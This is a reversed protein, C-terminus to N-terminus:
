ARIQLREINRSMKPVEIEWFGKETAAEVITLNKLINM